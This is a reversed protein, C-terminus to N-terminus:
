HRWKQLPDVNKLLAITYMYLKELIGHTDECM